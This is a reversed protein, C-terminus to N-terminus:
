VDFELEEFSPGPLSEIVMWQLKDHVVSMSKVDRDHCFDKTEPIDNWRLALRRLVEAQV